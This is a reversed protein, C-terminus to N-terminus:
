SYAKERIVTEDLYDIDTRCTLVSTWVLLVRRHDPEVTVSSLQGRHEEIRRGFRTSFALYVKPLVFLLTGSPTLNQLAVPEGGRLPGKPQQDVPSCLLSRPDWDTPLLPRRTQEWAADYTGTMERRPSWYSDIVGFGAPGAADLSGATYEFNPVPQDILHQPKAAVGHGVPNRTDLVQHKPDPDTQDYGGYAREYVIPVTTVPESLSPAVGLPGRVWWRDGRVRLTKQVPGVQASVTFDKSPRGGPAYATGNIVIDTTPKSAVLDPAYRVSSTGFEGNYEAMLLPPLQEEALSLAGDPAIDYTGKVAVIWEHVGDKNRGWTSGAAFSTRNDLAWM